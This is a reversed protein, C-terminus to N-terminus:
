KCYRDRQQHEVSQCGRMLARAFVAHLGALVGDIEESVRRAWVGMKELNGDKLARGTGVEYDLLRSCAQIAVFTGSTAPYPCTAAPTSGPMGTPLTDGLTPLRRDEAVARLEMILQAVNSQILSLNDPNTRRGRRLRDHWSPLAGIQLDSGCGASSCPRAAVRDRPGPQILQAQLLERQGEGTVYDEFGRAQIRERQEQTLEALRDAAARLDSV